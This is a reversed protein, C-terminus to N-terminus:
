FNETMREYAEAMMTESMIQIQQRRASLNYLPNVTNIGAMTVRPANYKKDSNFQSTWITSGDSRKKLSLKVNLRIDYASALVTGTPLTSSTSSSQPNEPMYILDSIEGILEVEALGPDTMRAVRSRELETRLSNTFDLEIGPEQTYNKFVPIYVQKYGHPLARNTFGVQYACSTLLTSLVLYRLLVIM